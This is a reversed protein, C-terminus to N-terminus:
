DTNLNTEEINNGTVINIFDIYDSYLSIIYNYLSEIRYSIDNKSKNPKIRKNLYANFKKLEMDNPKQRNYAYLTSKIIQTKLYEISSKQYMDNKNDSLYVKREKIISKMNEENIM